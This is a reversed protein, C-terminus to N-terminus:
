KNNNFRNKQNNKNKFLNFTLFNFILNKSDNDLKFYFILIFNFSYIVIYMFYNEYINLLQILFELTITIELM